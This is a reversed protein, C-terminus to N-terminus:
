LAFFMLGAGLFGNAEGEAAVFARRLGAGSRRRVDNNTPM